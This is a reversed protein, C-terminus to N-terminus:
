KLVFKKSALIRKKRLQSMVALKNQFYSGSIKASARWSKFHTQKAKGTINALTNALVLTANLRQNQIRQVRKEVAYKVQAFALFVRKYISTKLVESGSREIAKTLEYM